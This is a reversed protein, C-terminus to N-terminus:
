DLSEPENIPPNSVHKQQGIELFVELFGPDKYFFGSDEDVKDQIFSFGYNAYEEMTCKLASVADKLPLEDKELAIFDIDTRAILAAFMYDRIKPYAQRGLRTEINGWYEVRHGFSKRKAADSTLPKRQNYYLGIFFAVIFLEYGAGFIKGKSERLSNEGSGYNCFTTLIDTYRTEWQPDITLWKDFLRINEM